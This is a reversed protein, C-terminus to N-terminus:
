AAMKLKKKLDQCKGLRNDEMLKDSWDEPAEGGGGGM